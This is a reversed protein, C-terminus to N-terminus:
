NLSKRLRKVKFSVCLKSIKLKISRLGNNYKLKNIYQVYKDHYKIVQYSDLGLKIAEELRYIILAVLRYNVIASYLKSNQDIDHRKIIRQISKYDKDIKDISFKSLRNSEFEITYNTLHKKVFTIKKTKSLVDFFFEFDEGWSVGEPFIMKYKDIYDKRIMWGTTHIAVKGLVYEILVNEEKFLTHQIRKKQPDVLNYGCYCVDASKSTIRQLMLELFTIEYFDDSDLFCIYEGVANKLGKNRAASVGKNEQFLYIFRSDKETFSEIVKSTCDTSGDDVIIVEFNHYTQNLLSNLSTEISNEGNFVPIIISIKTSM